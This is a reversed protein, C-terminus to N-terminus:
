SSLHACDYLQEQWPNELGNSPTKWLVPDVAQCNQSAWRYIAHTGADESVNDFWNNSSVLFFRLKNERVLQAAQAPGLAPDIGMFGGYALVPLGTQIILPGAESTTPVAALYARDQRNATLYNLLRTDYRYVPHTLATEIAGTKASLRDNAVFGGILIVALLVM